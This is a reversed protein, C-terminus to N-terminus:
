KHTELYGLLNNFNDRHHTALQEVTSKLAPDAFYGAYVECKKTALAEHKLQDEIISLNKSEIEPMNGMNQQM